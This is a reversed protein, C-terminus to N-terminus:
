MGCAGGMENKIEEGSCWDRLVMDHLMIWGAAVDKETSRFTKRLVWNELV